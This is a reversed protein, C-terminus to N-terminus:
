VRFLRSPWRIIWLHEPDFPDGFTTRGFGVRTATQRAMLAVEIGLQSTDIPAGRSVPAEELASGKSTPSKPVGIVVHNGTRIEDGRLLRIKRLGGRLVGETIPTPEGERRGTPPSCVELAGAEVVESSAQGQASPRAYLLSSGLVGGRPATILIEGRRLGRGIALRRTRARGIHRAIQVVARAAM